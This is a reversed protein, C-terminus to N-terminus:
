QFRRVKEYVYVAVMETTVGGDAINIAVTFLNIGQSDPRPNVRFQETVHQRGQPFARITNTLSTVNPASTPRGSHSRRTGYSVYIYGGSGCGANIYRDIKAKLDIRIATGTAIREPPQTWNFRSTVQCALRGRVVEVKIYNAELPRGTRRVKISSGANRGSTVAVVANRLVPYLKQTLIWTETNNTPRAATSSGCTIFKFGDCTSQSCIQGTSIVRTPSRSGIDNEPAFRVARTFGNAVCFADAAPRGCEAAWRRCLDLRYGAITPRNFTQSQAQARAPALPFNWGILFLMFLAPISRM